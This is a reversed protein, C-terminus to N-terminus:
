ARRRDRWRHLESRVAWIALAFVALVPLLEWVAYAAALVLMAILAMGLLYTGAGMSYGRFQGDRGFYLRM